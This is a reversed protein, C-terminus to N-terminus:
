PVSKIARRKRALKLLLVVNGFRPLRDLFVLSCLPAWEDDLDVVMPIHPKVHKYFTTCCSNIRTKHFPVKYACGYCVPTMKERPKDRIKKERTHADEYRRVGYNYENRWWCEDCVAHHLCVAGGYKGGLADSNNIRRRCRACREDFRMNHLRWLETLKKRQETKTMIDFGNNKWFDTRKILKYTTQRSDKYSDSFRELASQLLPDFSRWHKVVDRWNLSM